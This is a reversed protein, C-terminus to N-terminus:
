GYNAKFWMKKVVIKAVVFTAPLGIIMAYIELRTHVLGVVANHIMDSVEPSM